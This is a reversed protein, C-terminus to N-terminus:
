FIKTIFEPIKKQIAALTISYNWDEGMIEKFYDRIDNTTPNCLSTAM